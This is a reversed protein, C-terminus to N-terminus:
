PGDGRWTDDSCLENFFVQATLYEGVEDSPTEGRVFRFIPCAHRRYLEAFADFDSSARAALSEDDLRIGVDVANSEM